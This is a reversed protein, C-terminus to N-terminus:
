IFKENLRNLDDNTALEEFKFSNVKDKITSLEDKSVLNKFNKALVLFLQKIDRLDDNVSITENHLRKFKEDLELEASFLDEDRKMQKLNYLKSDKELASIQRLNITSLATLEQMSLTSVKKNEVQITEKGINIGM